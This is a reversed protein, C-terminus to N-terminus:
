GSWTFASSTQVQLECSRADKTTPGAGPGAPACRPTSRAGAPSLRGARYPPKQPHFQAEARGIGRSGLSLRAKQPFRRRHFERRAPPRGSWSHGRPSGPIASLRGGGAPVSGRFTVVPCGSCVSKMVAWTAWTATSLAPLVDQGGRGLHGCTILWQAGTSSKAALSPEGNTPSL